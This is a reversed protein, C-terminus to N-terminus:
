NDRTFRDFLEQMGPLSRLREAHAIVNENKGKDALALLLTRLQDNYDFHPVRTKTMRGLVVSVGDPSADVLRVLEKTFEYVNHGVYVYPKKSKIKAPYGVPLLFVLSSM